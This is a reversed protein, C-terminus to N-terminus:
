LAIRDALLVNTVLIHSQQGVPTRMYCVSVTAEIRVNRRFLTVTTPRPIGERATFRHVCIAPRLLLYFIFLASGGEGM